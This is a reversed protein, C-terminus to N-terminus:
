LFFLVKAGGPQGPNPLGDSRFFTDFFIEFFFNKSNNDVFRPFWTSGGASVDSMYWFLTALRNKTGGHLM